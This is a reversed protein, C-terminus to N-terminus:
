LADCIEVDDDFIKLYVPKQARGEIVIHDYGAHKLMCGFSAGGGSGWGVTGTVPLKTVSVVRNSGPINTGALPGVGVMIPNEPSLPDVGPKILDYGLKILMGRGGIFSHAVELDLPEKKIKGTTLNVYLTSGAYGQM